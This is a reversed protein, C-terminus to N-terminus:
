FHARDTLIVDADKWAMLLRQRALDAEETEGLQELAETLGYLAWGNEQLLILDREFVNIAQNYEGADLHAQGLFLRMSQLWDPPEMYRLADQLAVAQRFAQIAEDYNGRASAIEGALAYSAVALMDATTNVAARQSDLVPENRLEQLNDYEAQAADIDDQNLYASGHM